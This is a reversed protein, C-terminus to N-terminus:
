RRRRKKKGKKPPRALYSRGAKVVKNKRLTFDRVVVSGQKVSTLTGSCTDTMTWQTGRVTAASNRGRTRFRGKVNSFITRRRQVASLAPKRAGGKPLPAGCKKLGGGTMSMTTLASKTSQQVIFLGREFHGTQTPKGAGTSTTIGVRGLKTDFTSGIPVQRAETLPVFGSAAGQLGLAKARAAATGRPLKVLVTGKEPVANATVGIKPEALGTPPPNGPPPNGPPPNGPPPPPVYEFAGIDCHPGVPRTVGRQDAPPCVSDDAADIAPSSDSLALTMTPGGNDALAALLPDVGSQDGGAAFACTTGSDVNHGGSPITGGNTAVCNQPSGGSVISNIVTVPTGGNAVINGGLNAAISGGGLVQNGAVTVNTLQVTGGGSEAVGGGYSDLGNTSNGTITSNSIFTMGSGDAVVGGGFAGGNLAKNGDITSDRITLKGGGDEAVGGGVGGGTNTATNGSISSREIVVGAEATPDTAGGNESVGGGVSAQNGSVTSDVIKVLTTGGGNEVVGGGEGATGATNQTVVVHDLTLSKGDSNVGGGHQTSTQTFGGTITVGSITAVVTPTGLDMLNRRIDFVRDDLHGSGGADVTTTAAGAGAITVDDRVDLDGTAASQEASGMISLTYHGAPLTIKDPGSTNNAAIVAERLSCDALDCSADNTDNEKTVPFDTASAIGPFLVGLALGTLVAVRLRAAM